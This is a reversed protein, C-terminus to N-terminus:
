LPRVSYGLDILCAGLSVEKWQWATLGEEDLGGNIGLRLWSGYVCEGPILQMLIKHSM